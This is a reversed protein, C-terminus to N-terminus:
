DLIPISAFKDNFRLSLLTLHFNRLHVVELYDQLHKQERIWSILSKILTQRVFKSFCCLRERKNSFHKISIDGDDKRTAAILDLIDVVWPVHWALANIGGNSASQRLPGKYANKTKEKADFKTPTSPVTLTSLSPLDPTSDQMDTEM